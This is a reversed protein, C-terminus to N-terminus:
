LNLSYIIKSRKLTINWSKCVQAMNRVDELTLFFAIRLIVEGPLSGTLTGLYRWRLIGKSPRNKRSKKKKYNESKEIFPLYEQLKKGTEMIIKKYKKKLEDWNETPDDMVNKQFQNACELDSIFGDKAIQIGFLYYRLSQALNKKGKKIQNEKQIRIKACAFAKQAITSVQVRLLERNLTFYKKFDVTQKWIFNSALNICILTRMDHQQLLEIFKSYSHINADVNGKSIEENNFLIGDKLIITFDWDSDETYNGWVRSGYLYINLVDDEKLGLEDLVNM